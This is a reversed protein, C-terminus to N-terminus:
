SKPSQLLPPYPFFFLFLIYLPEHALKFFISTAIGRPLNTTVVPKRPGPYTMTLMQYRIHRLVVYTHPSNTMTHVGIKPRMLLGSTSAM